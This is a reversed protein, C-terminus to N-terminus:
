QRPHSDEGGGRWSVVVWKSVYQHTVSVGGFIGHGILPVESSILFTFRELKPSESVGSLV